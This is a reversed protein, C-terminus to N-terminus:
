AHDAGGTSRAGRQSRLADVVQEEAPLDLRCLSSAGLQRGTVDRGDILLTPSPYDGVLEELKEQLQLRALARVVMERVLGARPCDPTRLLEIRAAGVAPPRGVGDDTM